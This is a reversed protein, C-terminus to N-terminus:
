EDYLTRLAKKQVKGTGSEPLAEAFVIKKPVKYGALREKLFGQIEEAGADRDKRLVVAATVREGWKPDPLGFVAAKLVAPHSFLVEEVERASVNEGGTVIMDKKRDVVYLFDEEDAKVLDGTYFWGNRIVKATEEPLGFYGEMVNPGRVTLEGPEGAPVPQGNDDLLRVQVFPLPPGVCATKRLSDRADLCTVCPGCETLGYIDFIGEARPFLEILARKVHDPLKDSGSSLTTVSSTDYQRSACHELLMIFLTPNGPAVTAREEQILTMMEEPDFKDMIILTAGLALRPVYHSNLAAAHFLPGVVLSVDDPRDRRSQIMNFANWAVNEHTLVVGKPRATTGSTYLLQCPDNSALTVTGKFPENKEILAEYSHLGTLPRKSTSFLHIDRVTNPVVEGALDQCAHDTVLVSPMANEALYALESGKSRFNFPAFVAGLRIAALHVEMMHSSNVMLTAVRDGRGVGLRALGSMLRQVREKVQGYTYRRGKSVIATKNPFRETSIDLFRGVDM